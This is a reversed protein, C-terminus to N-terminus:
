KKCRLCYLIGMSSGNNIPKNTEEIEFYNGIMAEFEQALMDFRTPRGMFEEIKMMVRGTPSDICPIDLVFKGEPKLIRHAEQLAKSVFDKEFYELVGICAGIDFYSDQFPTEHISGCYLTGIPIKNKAAFEKLLEITNESIDVGHYTSPWQDYGKFMLNLACGLDIFKMNRNPALYKIIDANESGGPRDELEAKYAPYDPDNIIYDPLEAYLNVGKRGLDITRDYSQAVLELHNKYKIM